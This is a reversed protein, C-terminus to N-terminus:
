YHVTYANESGYGLIKMMPWAIDRFQELQSDTLQFDIPFFVNQPTKLFEVYDSDFEIGIFDLAQRLVKADTTLDELKIIMQQNSPVYREMDQLIVRNVESWHYCVRQFQDFDPFEEHFPQGPQPINWWYKKEPPPPPLNIPDALWGALICTSRDDYMEPALKYFFSSTVKRGDRVLALFRANPYMEMLPEILWSLKNSADIWIRADSYTIGAGHLGHLEAKASNKDICGMYYLCALKQVHTCVFEHYIELDPVGSLMKFMTRTGCRGSGIIFIPIPYNSM